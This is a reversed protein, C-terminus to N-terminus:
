WLLEFNRAEIKVLSRRYVFTAITELQNYKTRGAGGPLTDAPLRFKQRRRVVSLACHKRRVSRKKM